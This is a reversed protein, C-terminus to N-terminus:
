VRHVPEGALWTGEVAVGALEAPPLATIDAGLLCLDARKGPAITGAAAEEFAQWATGATYAALATDLPLRQAPLWGGDPEGDATQRTVAVAIGEMPVVSSVPWDSGMSLRAGSRWLDGMPYQLASRAPGLRPITLDTMTPDLQAWLPEFNAVVGLAAFRPLDDPHILQTHAITPRRDRARNVRAAHEFADLAARVGADGIAHVHVQFGAADAATVAAALAEPPWNPIGHDHGNGNGGAAGMGLYPELLAATGAEIIGDAFLKVTGARVLGNGGAAHGAAQGAAQAAATVRERTAIADDLADRWRSPGIAMALGFRCTLAGEAALTLYADAEEPRVLADLGWVIGAAALQRLAARLAAARAATDKVPQLKDALDVASELLTGLPSGDPRRAIRGRPPDPTGADIGLRDLAASNVWATHYDSAHLVVPRDPVIRDLLEADFLGGPRLAPEYGGGTIVPLEPHEAAYRRVRDLLDDLSAAGAVPAASLAFGAHLPHVHGDRFGPVLTRGALDVTEVGQGGRERADDGLAAIVGSEVLVADTVPLSREGTWVTGGIFRLTAVGIARV